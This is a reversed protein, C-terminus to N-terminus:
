RVRGPPCLETPPDRMLTTGRHRLNRDVVRRPARRQAVTQPAVRAAPGVPSRDNREVAGRGPPPHDGIALEVAVDVPEGAREGCVADATAVDDRQHAAVTRLVDDREPRRDLETGGTGSDIVPEGRALDGVLQCVRPRLHDDGLVGEDVLEFREVIRQGIDGQPDDGIGVGVPRGDVPQPQARQDGLALVCLRHDVEVLV